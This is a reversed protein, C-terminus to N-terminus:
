LLTLLIHEESIFWKQMGSYDIKLHYTTLLLPELFPMWDYSNVPLLCFVKVGVEGKSFDTV